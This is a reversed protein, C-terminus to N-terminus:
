DNFNESLHDYSPVVLKSMSSFLPFHLTAAERVKKFLEPVLFVALFSFFIFKLFKSFGFFNVVVKIQAYFQLSRGWVTSRLGLLGMIHNIFFSILFIIKTM